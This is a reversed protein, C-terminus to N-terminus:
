TIPTIASEKSLNVIEDAFEMAAERHSVIILTNSNEKIFNLVKIELELDLASTPEDLIIIDKKRLVARAISIRQREGGSTQRHEGGVHIDLPSPEGIYLNLAKLIRELEEDMYHETAGYLINERITGSFIFPHQPVVAVRELINESTLNRVNEGFFDISGKYDTKLSLMANILTTKGLGSPGTIVYTKGHDISFTTKKETSFIFNNVKFVTPTKNPTNIATKPPSYIDYYKLGEGLALYDRKLGVLSSAIIAFPATLQAVYSIIMVFDGVKFDGKMVSHTSFLTSSALVLGIASAQLSLFIAMKKNASFVADAYSEIFPLLNKSEKNKTTNTKIEYASDIREVLFNTLNNTAEFCRLQVGETKQTIQYAILLLIGISVLFLTSFALNTERWLILFVFLMEILLPSLTWFITQNIHGFSSMSRDFDAIIEGKQIKRQESFPLNLYCDFLSRYFASDCRVTIYTTAIVKIWEFIKSLTWTLAYAGVTIYIISTTTTSSYTLMDSAKKLLLPALSSLGALLILFLSVLFFDRRFNSYISKTINLAKIYPEIYQNRISDM